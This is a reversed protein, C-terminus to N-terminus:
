RGLWGQQLLRGGPSRKGSSACDLFPLGGHHGTVRFGVARAMTNGQRSELWSTVLGTARCRDASHRRLRRRFDQRSGEPEGKGSNTSGVWLRGGSHHASRRRYRDLSVQSWCGYGWYVPWGAMTRMACPSSSISCYTAVPRSRGETWRRERRMAALGSPSRSM